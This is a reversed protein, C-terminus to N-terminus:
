RNFFFFTQSSGPTPRLTSLNESQMLIKVNIRHEKEEIKTSANEDIKNRFNSYHNTKHYSLHDENTQSLPMDTFPNYQTYTHLIIIFYLTYIHMDTHLIDSM